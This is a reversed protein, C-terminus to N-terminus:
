PGSLFNRAFTDPVHFVLSIVAIIDARYRPAGIAVNNRTIQRECTPCDHSCAEYISRHILGPLRVSSPTDEPHSGKTGARTYKSKENEGAFGIEERKDEELPVSHHQLTTFKEKM